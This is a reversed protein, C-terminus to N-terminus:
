NKQAGTMEYEDILEHEDTKQAGKLNNERTKKSDMLKTRMVKRRRM